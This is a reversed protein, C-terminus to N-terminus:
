KGKEKKRKRRLWKKHSRKLGEWWDQGEQGLLIGKSMVQVGNIWISAGGGWKHAKYNDMIAKSLDKKPTQRQANRIRQYESCCKKCTNGSGRYYETPAKLQGCKICKKFESL